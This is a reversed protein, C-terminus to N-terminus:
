RWKPRRFIVICVMRKEKMEKKRRDVIAAKGEWWGRWAGEFDAYKRRTPSEVVAL